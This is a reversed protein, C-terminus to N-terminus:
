HSDLMITDKQWDYMEGNENIINIHKISPQLEVINLNSNVNTGDMSVDTNSQSNIHIYHSYRICILGLCDKHLTYYKSNDKLDIPALPTYSIGIRIYKENEELIDFPNFCWRNDDFSKHIDKRMLIGNAPHFKLITNGVNECISKDIIHCADLSYTSGTIVCKRDYRKNIERSFTTQTTIVM